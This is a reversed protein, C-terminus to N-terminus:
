EEVAPGSEHSSTSTVSDPSAAESAPRFPRRFPDRKEVPSGPPTGGRGGKLWVGSARPRPPALDAPSSPPSPKHGSMDLHLRPAGFGGTQLHGLGPVIVTARQRRQKPRAAGPGIVAGPSPLPPPPPTPTPPDDWSDRPRLTTADFSVRKSSTRKGSPSPPPPAGACAAAEEAGAALVARLSDAGRFSPRRAAASAADRSARRSARFSALEGRGLVATRPRPGRADPAADVVDFAVEDVSAARGLLGGTLDRWKRIDLAERLNDTASSLAHRRLPAADLAFWPEDLAERASLRRRPDARLLGRVLDVAERSLDPADCGADADFTQIADVMVRRDSTPWPLYGFLLAHVIAGCAWVDAKVGYRPAGATKELRLVEPAMYEDTGQVSKLGSRNAGELVKALGFDTLRIHGAMDFLVNEPKLDRYVMDYSHMHGIALVLEAIM